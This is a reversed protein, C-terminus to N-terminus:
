RLRIGLDPGVLAQLLYIVAIVIVIARIILMAKPDLELLSLLYLILFIVLLFILLGILSM